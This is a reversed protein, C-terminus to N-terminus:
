LPIPVLHDKFDRGVSLRNTYSFGNQPLLLNSGERPRKALGEGATSKLECKMWGGPQDRKGPDFM